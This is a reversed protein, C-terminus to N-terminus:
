FGRRYYFIKTVDDAVSGLFMALIIALIIAIATRISGNSSM